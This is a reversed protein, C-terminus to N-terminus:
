ADWKGVADGAKVRDNMVSASRPERAASAHVRPAGVGRRIVFPHLAM